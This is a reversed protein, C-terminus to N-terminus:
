CEELVDIIHAIKMDGKNGVANTLSIFSLFKKLMTVMRSFDGNPLHKRVSEVNGESEQVFCGLLLAVYSSVISDEMHKGAKHLAKSLVDKEDEQSSPEEEEKEEQEEKSDGSVWELGDGTVRWEGSQEAQETTGEAERAAAERDLFLKILAEVATTEVARREPSTGVSDYAFPAWTETLLRRNKASHELLNILLGLGLVHMDFRQEAPLYQPAQLVCLLATKLLGPQEGVKTSGWENDHTLNLLVRLLALLCSRVVTGPTALVSDDEEHQGNLPLSDDDSFHQCMRTFSQLARVVTGVLEGGKYSLLYGQNDTNMFTMNELVRLCRDMKRLRLMAPDDPKKVGDGLCAECGMVMDALRDLGGLKRVEEKFSDGARKSTLTMLCEMALLGASIKNMKLHKNNTKECLQQVKERIKNFERGRVAGDAPDAVQADVSLLQIMLQLCTSDLDMNMRDRSLMYMLLATCLSLAPDSAADQLEGFVKNVTGHARLQLRFIPALCKTALSILSLCRTGASVTSKLGDLLYEIDDSFEQTEGLEICDNYNKVNSVVTYLEKQERPVRLATVPAHHSRQAVSTRRTLLLPATAPEDDDDDHDYVDADKPPPPPPMLTPDFSESTSPQWPRPNYRVKAPSKKPSYFKRPKRPEGSATPQSRSPLEEEGFGFPDEDRESSQSSPLSQSGKSTYKKPSGKSTSPQSLSAFGSTSPQSSSLRSSTTSGQSSSPLSGEDSPPAYSLRSAYSKLATQSRNATSAVATQATCATTSKSTISSGVRSSVCSVPISATSTSSPASTNATTTPGTKRATGVVIRVRPQGGSITRTQPLGPWKPSEDDDSSQSSNWTYARVPPRSKTISAWREDLTMSNSSGAGATSSDAKACTRAWNTGGSAVGGGQSNTIRSWSPRGQEKRESDSSLGDDSDSFDFADKGSNVSNKKPSAFIFPDDEVRAAPTEKVRSRSISSPMDFNDKPSSSEAAQNSKSVAAVARDFLLEATVKGEKLKTKSVNSKVSSAAYSHEKPANKTAAPKSHAAYSHDAPESSPVAKAQPALVSTTALHHAYSHDSYDDSANRVSPKQISSYAHDSTSKKQPSSLYTHDDKVSQVPPRHMSVYAHDGTAKPPQVPKHVSRATYSHEGMSQPPAPKCLSTYSHEEAPINKRPSTRLGKRSSHDDDSSDFSFPDDSNLRRRKHEVLQENEVNHRRTMRVATFTTNGWKQTKSSAKAALPRKSDGGFVQDFKNTPEEVKPKTAGRSYTKVGYRPM